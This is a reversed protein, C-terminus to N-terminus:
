EIVGALWTLTRRRAEESPVAPKWGLERHAREASFFDKAGSFVDVLWLPPPDSFRPGFDVRPSAQLYDAAGSAWKKITPGLWNLRLRSFLRSRHRMYALRRRYALWARKATSRFEASRLASRLIDRLGPGRLTANVRALTAADMSPISDMWREVVPGLFERWTLCEDNIIFRRGHAEEVVAALLMADVLNEVYTVNATGSGGDIWCFKGERALSAPQQTYTSGRPGYVCTPLLLVIRTKGSHRARQLCWREMKAKARGYAGGIPRYPCNENVVEGPRGLVYMTSLVVVAEVGEAIAANVVNRTRKVNVAEPDDWGYALHFVYRKGRVVERVHAMNLLDTAHYRVPFRSISACGVRSHYGATVESVGDRHLRAILHSGIFGTAGTVYVKGPSLRPGAATIVTHAQSSRRNDYAWEILTATQAADRGSALTKDSIDGALFRSLQEVFCEVLTMSNATSTCLRLSRGLKPSDSHLVCENPNDAIMRLEAVSGMVRIENALPRQRSLSIDVTAGSATRLAFECESEVGGAFDDHYRVPNLPGLLLEALDLYHVGMDALVGGNWPQFPELSMAPWAYRGGHIFRVARVDGLWGRRIVEAAIQIGPSARRVMNVALLSHRSEALDALSSCETARMALPKECLVHFGHRLAEAAADHHLANPLAVVCHTFASLDGTSLFTRYDDDILRKARVGSRTALSTDIITTKSLLGLSQLAPGYFRRVVAGAGLILIEGIMAPTSARSAATQQSTIAAAM